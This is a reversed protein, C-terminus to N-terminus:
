ISSLYEQVNREGCGINTRYIELNEVNYHFYKIIFTELKFLDDPDNFIIRTTGTDSKTAM